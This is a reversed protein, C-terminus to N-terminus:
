TRVEIASGASVANEFNDFLAMKILRLYYFTSLLSLVVSMILIYLLNEVLGLSGTQSYQSLLSSRLLYKGVFGALPPLGGLSLLSVALLSMEMPAKKILAVDKLSRISFDGITLKKAQLLTIVCFFLVNALMYIYLYTVTSKVGDVSLVSLGIFLFGMQNIATYAVFRKVNTALFAGAAGVILSGLCSTAIRFNTIAFMAPTLFFVAFFRLFLIFVTFKALV